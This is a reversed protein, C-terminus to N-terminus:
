FLEYRNFIQIKWKYTFYVLPLDFYEYEKSASSDNLSRKSKMWDSRSRITLEIEEVFHGTLESCEEKKEM